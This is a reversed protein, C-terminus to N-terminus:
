GKWGSRSRRAEFPGARGRGPVPFGSIAENELSKEPVEGDKVAGRGFGPAHQVEIEVLLGDRLKVHIFRRVFLISSDLHRVM